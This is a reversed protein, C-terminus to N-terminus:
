NLFYFFDFASNLHLFLCSQAIYKNVFTDVQSTFQPELGSM